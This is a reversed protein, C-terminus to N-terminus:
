DWILMKDNLFTANLELQSVTFYYTETDQQNARRKALTLKPVSTGVPPDHTLSSCVDPSPNCESDCMTELLAALTAKLTKSIQRPSPLVVKILFM